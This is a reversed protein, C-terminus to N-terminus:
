AESLQQDLRSLPSTESASVTFFEAFIAEM